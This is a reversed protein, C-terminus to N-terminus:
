HREDHEEIKLKRHLIKCIVTQGKENHQRDKMLNCSRIIGKTEEFKELM